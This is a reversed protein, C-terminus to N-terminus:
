SCLDEGLQLWNQQEVVGRDEYVAFRLNLKHELTRRVASVLVLEALLKLDEYQLAYMAPKGILYRLRSKCRPQPASVDLVQSDVPNNAASHQAITKAFQSSM